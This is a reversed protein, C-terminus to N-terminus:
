DYTVVSYGSDRLEDILKRDGHAIYGNGKPSTRFGGCRALLVAELCFRDMSDRKGTFVKFKTKM